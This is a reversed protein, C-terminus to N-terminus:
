LYIVAQPLCPQHWVPTYVTYLVDIGPLVVAAHTRQASVTTSPVYYLLYGISIQINNVNKVVVFWLLTSYLLNEFM